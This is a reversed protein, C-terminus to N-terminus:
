VAVAFGIGGDSEYDQLTFDDYTANDITTGDAIHLYSRGKPERALQELLGPVHDYGYDHSEVDEAGEDAPAEDVVWDRVSRYEASVTAEKIRQQLEDLNEEYWSSRQGRGCYVHADIMTHGFEGIEWGTQQAVLKALLAYAAINFPIGLALDASRQMLSCNLKGGQVNFAFTFHCPPLNSAQANSPHWANIVFRRSEPGRYPNEGKLADVTFGLQDFVLRGNSERTTYKSEESMWEEGALRTDGEPVPYRRWFRGYASPLNYDEDAWDDWIGTEETLNRIHHDGSLYWEVEHLMSDWRFTDMEKTTVLPYGDELDIKYHQDFTAITEEKTRNKEYTGDTLATEVVNHYENM